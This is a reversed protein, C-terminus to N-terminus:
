REERPLAGRGKQSSVKATGIFNVLFESGSRSGDANYRQARVAGDNTDGVLSSEDVWAVVFGGDPLACINPNIQNHLTTTPVLFENGAPHGDAGYRQGRVASGDADDASLSFDNWAVVFGGDALATITPTTQSGTTTTNVLFEAGLGSGDANFIQARIAPGDTDGVSESADTWAVVFRGDALATITPSSQGQATTTNVLFESGWKIPTNV